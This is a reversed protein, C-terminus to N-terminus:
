AVTTATVVFRDRGGAGLRGARACRRISHSLPLSSALSPPLSLSNSLSNELPLQTDKSCNERFMFIVRAAGQDLIRLVHPSLPIERDILLGSPRFAM